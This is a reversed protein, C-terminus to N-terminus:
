WHNLFPALMAPAVALVKEIKVTEVFSAAEYTTSTLLELPEITLEAAAKVTVADPGWTVIM